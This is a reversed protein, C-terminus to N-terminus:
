AHSYILTALPYPVIQQDKSYLSVFLFCSWPIRHLDRSNPNQNKLVNDHNTVNWNQYCKLKWSVETKTVKWNQHFKRKPSMESNTVNWNQHCILKPSMESKTINWNQHRILKQSMEIKKKIMQTKIINWNQHCM